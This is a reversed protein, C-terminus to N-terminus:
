ASPVSFLIWSSDLGVQSQNRNEEVTHVALSVRMLCPLQGLSTISTM